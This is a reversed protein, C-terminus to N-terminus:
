VTRTAQIVYTYTAADVTVDITITNSGLVLTAAAGQSVVDGNCKQVITSGSLVSAVTVSAAAISTTYFLNSKDASFLPSLTGSGMTLSTLTNAAIANLESWVETTPNFRGLTPEGMFNVTYALKTSTGGDGGFADMQVSCAQKEAEYYGSIPTRYVWVNAVETEAFSMVRRSKRLADVFDFVDDGAIAITELPFKPAYSEVTVTANDEHIYTVEEVKPNYSISGSNVGAGILGWDPSEITGVNLFSRFLSRKVKETM